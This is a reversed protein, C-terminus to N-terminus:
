KDSNKCYNFITVSKDMKIFSLMKDNIKIVFSMMAYFSTLEIKIKIFPLLVCYTWVTM